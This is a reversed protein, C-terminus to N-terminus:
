FQRLHCLCASTQHFSVKGDIYKARYVSGVSGQGLLYRAGFNGTAQQLDELTYITANISSERRMANFKSAFETDNLSKHRDSPTKLDTSVSTQISKRSLTQRM